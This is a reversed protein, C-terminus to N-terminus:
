SPTRSRSPHRSGTRPRAPLRREQTERTLWRLYPAHGGTIATVVIEPTEYDHHARIFAQLARIRTTRTKCSLLMEGGSEIKGKWRYVSRVPWYQVCAALRAAVIRGALKTAQASTAVTTTVISYDAGSM